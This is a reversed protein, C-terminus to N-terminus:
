ECDGAASKLTAAAISLAALTLQEGSVLRGAPRPALMQIVATHSVGHQSPAAAVPLLRQM